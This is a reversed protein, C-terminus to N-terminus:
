DDRSEWRESRWGDGGESRWDRHGPAGAMATWCRDLVARRAQYWVEFQRARWPNWAARRYFRARALDLWGGSARYTAAFLCAALVAPFRDLTERRVVLYICGLCGLSAAFSVLRLPLFGFGVIGAVLAAVYYYLPTYIFPVFELSPPGYLKKGDLVRGVHDLCGGELWELEFPYSLRLVAVGLYAAPFLLAFWLLGQRLLRPAREALDQRM